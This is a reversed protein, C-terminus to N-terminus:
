RESPSTGDPCPAYPDKVLSHQEFSFDGDEGSRSNIRGQSPVMPGLKLQYANTDQKVFGLSQYLKNAAVREPRSTLQLRSVRLERAKAMLVEMIKRGLGHGRVKEDVVVDEVRGVTKAVRKVIVLSAMGCINSNDDSDRVVFLVSGSLAFEEAKILDVSEVDVSLQRFLRNLHVHDSVAVNGADRLNFEKVVFRKNDFKKSM